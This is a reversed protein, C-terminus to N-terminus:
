LAKTAFCCGFNSPFQTQSREVVEVPREEAVGVASQRPIQRGPRRSM